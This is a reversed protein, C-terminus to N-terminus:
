SPINPSALFSVVKDSYTNCINLFPFVCLNGEPTPPFFTNENNAFPKEFTEFVYSKFKAEDFAIGAKMASLLSNSFAGWRPAVYRHLSSLPLSVKTIIKLAAM